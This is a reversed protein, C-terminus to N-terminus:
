KKEEQSAIEACGILWDVISSFNSPFGKLGFRKMFAGSTMKLADCQSLKTLIARIEIAAANSSSSTSKANRYLGFQSMSSEVHQVTVQPVDFKKPATDSAIQWAESVRQKFEDENKSIRRLKQLPRTLGEGTPLFEVGESKLQEVIKSHDILQYARTKSYGWRSETYTEFTKYGAAKYLKDDHIRRLANYASDLAQEIIVECEQLLDAVGGELERVVPRKTVENTTTAM